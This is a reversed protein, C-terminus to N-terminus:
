AWKPDHTNRREYHRLNIFGHAFGGRMPMRRRDTPRVPLRLILRTTRNLAM